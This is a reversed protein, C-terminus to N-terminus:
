VETDGKLAKVLTNFADVVDDIDPEEGSIEDIDELDLRDSIGDILEKLAAGQRADLVKGSTTHDLGNYVATSAVKADVLSKLQVGQKASLVKDSDDTTLNDAIVVVDIDVIGEVTAGSEIKLKGGVVWTSGSDTMYNKTTYAM